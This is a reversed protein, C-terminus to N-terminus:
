TYMNSLLTFHKESADKLNIAKITLLICIILDSLHTLVKGPHLVRRIHPHPLLILHLNTASLVIRGKNM